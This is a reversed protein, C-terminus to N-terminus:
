NSAALNQPLMTSPLHGLHWACKSPEADQLAVVITECDRKIVSLDGKAKIISFQHSDKEGLDLDRPFIAPPSPM